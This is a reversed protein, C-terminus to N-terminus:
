KSTGLPVLILLNSSCSEINESPTVTLRYGVLRENRPANITCITYRAPTASRVGGAVPEVQRASPIVIGLDGRRGSSSRARALNRSACLTSDWATAATWM